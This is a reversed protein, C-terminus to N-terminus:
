LDVEEVHSFIVHSNNICNRPSCMGLVIVSIKIEFEYTKHWFGLKKSESLKTTKNKTTESTNLNEM